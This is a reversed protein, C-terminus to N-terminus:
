IIRTLRVRRTVRRPLVITEFADWLVIALLVVGALGALFRMGYLQVKGPPFPLMPGIRRRVTPSREAHPSNAASCSPRGPSAAHASARRSAADAPALVCM